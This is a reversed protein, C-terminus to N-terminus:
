RLVPGRTRRMSKELNRIATTGPNFRDIPKEAKAQKVEPIAEPIPEPEIVPEAEVVVPVVPPKKKAKPKVKPKPEEKPPEIDDLPEDFPILEFDDPPPLIKAKKKTM